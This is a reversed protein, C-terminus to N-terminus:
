DNEDNQTIIKMLEMTELVVLFCQAIKLKIQRMFM